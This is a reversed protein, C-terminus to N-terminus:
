PHGSQPVRRAQPAATRGAASIPPPVFESCLMGESPPPSCLPLVPLCVASAPAHRPAVPSASHLHASGVHQLLPQKVLARHTAALARGSARPAQLTVFLAPVVACCGQFSWLVAPLAPLQQAAAAPWQAPPGPGRKQAAAFCWALYPFSPRERCRLQLAPGRATEPTATAAPHASSHLSYFPSSVAAASLGALAAPPAAVPLKPPPSGGPHGAAAFSAQYM